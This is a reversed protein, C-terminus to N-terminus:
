YTGGDVLTLTTQIYADTVVAQVRATTHYLNTGEAVDTTNFGTFNADNLVIQSSGSVIGAPKSAINDWTTQTISGSVVYRADYSSTLQSSGSIVGIGNSFISGTVNLNGNISLGFGSGQGIITPESSRLSLVNPQGQGTIKSVYFDLKNYSPVSADHGSVVSHTLTNTLTPYAFVLQTSGSITNIGNQLIVSGGSVNVKFPSLAATGVGISNFQYDGTSGSHIVRGKTEYSSSAANLNAVSITANSQSTILSGTVVGVETLRTNVSGTHTALTTLQTLVSSTLSNINSVSITNASSSGILSGTVVGIETM